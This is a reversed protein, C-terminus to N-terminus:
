AATAPVGESTMGSSMSPVPKATASRKLVIILLIGALALAVQLAAVYLGLRVNSYFFAALSIIQLALGVWPVAVLTDPRRVALAIQPFM